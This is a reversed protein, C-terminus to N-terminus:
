LFFGIYMIRNLLEALFESLDAGKIALKIVSWSFEIGALCWFLNLAFNRLTGEWASTKSQYTDIVSDLFNNTPLAQSEPAIIFLALLGSLCCVSGFFTLLRKTRKNVISKMDLGAKFPEM